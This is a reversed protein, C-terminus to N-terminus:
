FADEGEHRRETGREGGGRDDSATWKARGGERGRNDNEENRM